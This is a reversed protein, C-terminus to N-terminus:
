HELNTAIMPRVTIGADARLTEWGERGHEDTFDECRRLIDWDWYEDKSDGCEEYQHHDEHQPVPLSFWQSCSICFIALFRLSRWEDLRELNMREESSNM